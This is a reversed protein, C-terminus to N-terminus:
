MQIKLKDFINEFSTFIWLKVNIKDYLKYNKKEFSEFADYTDRFKHPVITVKEELNYEPIYLTIKYIDIDIIYAYTEISTETSRDKIQYLFNLRRVLRDFKRCNKTFINIKDIRKLLDSQDMDKIKNLLLMHIYFDIARRIPSTFHTYYENDLKSHFQDNSELNKEYIEYQASNEKRIKIYKRLKECTINQYSENEDDEESFNQSRHTRVIINSYNNEILYKAIFKNTFIMWKEVLIHSDIKDIKFFDKSIQLFDDGDFTEYDYNKINKVVTERIHFSLVQDNSIKLILSIAFRKENELLSIINDAYQNPLLNYKKDPLYVTSVRDLIKLLDDEFFKTPSAIHIGIEYLHDGEIKFHFADDIDKSGFPDISFVEYKEKLDSFDIKSNNEIRWNTNKIEYYIRLHEIEADQDGVNGITEILTGIPLRDTVKWEKFKIITFIKNRHNKIKYPVYFNSYARNTPKFLYLSKDKITGYKYKSDLYLIGVINNLNREKIGVIVNDLIYVTDDYIARNNEIQDNDNKFKAIIIKELNKEIDVLYEKHYQM